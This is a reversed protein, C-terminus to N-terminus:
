KKTMHLGAMAYAIYVLGLPNSEKLLALRSRRLAEGVEIGQSFVQLFHEAFATALPEFITIETGIVGAAGAVEVFGSVLEFASEPELATTHCGNIFVLPRPNEWVVDKARLNDRTIGRETMQGVQIFPINSSTVGGHCYFYVLHPNAIKLADFTADRNDARTWEAQTLQNRLRTEHAARLKFNPDLCVSIVLSPRDKVEIETPADPADVLSLPLGLAHRFGWFGSPCITVDDGKSPCNGDFCACKELPDPGKLENLFQPCLQYDKADVGTDFPYDYILAAPLILRASQKLAIQVLGHQDMIQALQRAQAKGGALQNIIQDYIRYGRIALSILDDRLRKLDPPGNYRYAQDSHAKEDGWATKKLAARAYDILGQVQQADISADSKFEGEGFFRFGHSGNGNDNIMLSLQHAQIGALHAASMSQSLTYDLESVLAPGDGSWQDLPYVQARVLRSQVLCQNYYISCRLRMTGKQVPTKVPFLLWPVEPPNSPSGPQRVVVASGDELLKLLGISAQPDVELEGEFAFVAVHLLADKPLNEPLSTPTAEISGTVWEGVGLCFFYDLEPSLPQMKDLLAGPENKSTFGTNVVNKGAHPKASQTPRHVFQIEGPHQDLFTKFVDGMPKGPYITRSVLWFYGVVEEDRLIVLFRLANKQAETRAVALNTDAQQVAPVKVFDAALDVLQMMFFEEPSITKLRLKLKGLQCAQFTHADLRVLIFHYDNGGQQTLRYIVSGVREDPDALLFDKGMENDALGM